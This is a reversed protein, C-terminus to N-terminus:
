DLCSECTAFVAMTIDGADFPMHLLWCGMCVTYYIAAMSQSAAHDRQMTAPLAASAADMLAAM